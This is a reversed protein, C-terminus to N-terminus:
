FRLTVRKYPQVAILNRTPCLAHLLGCFLKYCCLFCATHRCSLVSSSPRLFCRAPCRLTVSCSEIPRCSFGGDTSYYVVVARRPHFVYSRFTHQTYVSNKKRQGIIKAKFISHWCCLAHIHHIFLAVIFHLMTSYSHCATTPTCACLAARRALRQWSTVSSLKYSSCEVTQLIILRVVADRYISSKKTWLVASTARRWGKRDALWRFNITGRWRSSLQPRRHKATAPGDVQFESGSLRRSGARLKLM